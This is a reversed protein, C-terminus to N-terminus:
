PGIERPVPLARAALRQAEQLEQGLERPIPLGRAALEGIRRTLDAIRREQRRRQLRAVGDAFARDAREGAPAEMMLAAILDRLEPDTGGFLMLTAGEGQDDRAVWPVPELLREALRRHLGDEFDGPVLAERAAERLEPHQLLLRLLHREAPQPGRGAAAAAGGRSGEWQFSFDSSTEWTNKGTYKADGAPLVARAAARLYKKLERRFAEESVGLRAAFRSVYADGTVASEEAALHPLLAGVVAAKEEIKALDRGRVAEEFVFDLLPLAGDVVERFAAAGRARLFGDPDKGEPVRAVRVRCGTRRFVEIGRLAALTGAEDADYALIAEKAHRALSWAQERSLATGLSAVAHTFGHQHATVVDMYGEMVLARGRERIAGRALDLGFWVLRKNFLPTEPSNLYKPQGEGLVRGGFGIVRGLEDRIPFMLRGRFRDRPEGDPGPAILGSRELAEASVGQRRLAGLLARGGAPAFGLGFRDRTEDTVGRERLYRRAAGAAPDEKLVRHYYAAAAALAQLDQEREGRRRAEEPSPADEPLRVGARRALAEVAEPFDLGEKRMVFGFVDGSAKCGFCHFLQKEPSVSFSPTRDDHFPCRGVLARGVRRLSVYQGVIEGIDCRRRIEELTEPTWRSM